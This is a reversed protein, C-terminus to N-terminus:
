IKYIIASGSVRNDPSMTVAMRVTTDTFKISKMKSKLDIGDTSTIRIDVTSFLNHTFIIFYESNAQDTNWSATDFELAATSNKNIESGPLPTGAGTGALAVYKGNRDDFQPGTYLGSWDWILYESSRVVGFTSAVNLAYKFERKQQELAQYFMGATNIYNPGKSWPNVSIGSDNYPMENRYNLVGASQLLFMASCVVLWNLSPFNDLRVPTILPPTSNWDGIAMNIALKIDEDTNEYQGFVKNLKPQDRLFLRVLQIVLQPTPTGFNVNSIRSADLTPDQPM